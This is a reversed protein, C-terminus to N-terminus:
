AELFCEALNFRIGPPDFTLAENAAFLRTAWEAQSKRTHLIARKKKPDILLVHAISPVTLYDALKQGMDFSRTGPSGVEVVITPTDVTISDPDVKPGCNVVADPEYCTEDDIVVTMGDPFVQCPLKAARVASKLAIYTNGKVDAHRAKESQMKVPEGCFLEWRGHVNDMNWELFEAVTMRPPPTEPLSTM